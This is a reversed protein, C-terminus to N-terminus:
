SMAERLANLAENEAEYLGYLHEQIDAFLAATEADSLPLNSNLEAELDALQSSLEGVQEAGEGGQENYVAYKQALLTRTKALPSIADPLVADAFAAWLDGLAKYQDAANNLAANNLIPAAESLFDGYM